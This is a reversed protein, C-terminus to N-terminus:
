EQTIKVAIKIRMRRKRCKNTGSKIWGGWKRTISGGEGINWWSQRTSITIQGFIRTCKYYRIKIPDQWISIGKSRPLSSWDGAWLIEVKWTNKIFQNKIISIEKNKTSGPTM